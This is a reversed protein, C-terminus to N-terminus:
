PGTRIYHVQAARLEALIADQQQASMSGIAANVGIVADQPAAATSQTAIVLRILCCLAVATAARKMM